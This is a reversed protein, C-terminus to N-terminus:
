LSGDFGLGESNNNIPGGETQPQPQNTPRSVAQGQTGDGFQNQGDRNAAVGEDSALASGYGSLNDDGRTHHSKNGTIGTVGSVTSGNDARIVFDGGQGSGYAACSWPAIGTLCMAQLVETTARVYRLPDRREERANTLQWYGPDIGGRDMERAMWPVQVLWLQNTHQCEAREDKTTLKSCDQVPAMLRELNAANKDDRDQMSKLAVYTSESVEAGDPMIVTNGACGAVLLVLGLIGGLRLGRQYAM